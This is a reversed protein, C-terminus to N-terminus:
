QIQTSDKESKFREVNVGTLCFGDPLLEQISDSIFDMDSLVYDLQSSINTELVEICKEPLDEEAEIVLLFPIRYKM